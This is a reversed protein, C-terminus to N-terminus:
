HLLLFIFKSKLHIWNGMDFPSYEFVIIELVEGSGLSVHDHVIKVWCCRLGENGFHILLKCVRRSARSERQWMTLCRPRSSRKECIRYCDIQLAPSVRLSFQSFHFPPGKFDRVERLNQLLSVPRSSLFQLFVPFFCFPPRQYRSIEIM